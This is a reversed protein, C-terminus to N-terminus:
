RLEFSQRNLPARKRIQRVFGRAAEALSKRGLLHLRERPDFRHDNDADLEGLPGAGIFEPIGLEEAQCIADVRPRNDRLRSLRM